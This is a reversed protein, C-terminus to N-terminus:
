SLLLNSIWRFVEERGVCLLYSYSQEPNFVILICLAVSGTSLTSILVTWVQFLM